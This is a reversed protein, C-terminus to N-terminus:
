WLGGKISKVKQEKGMKQALPFGHKTFSKLAHNPNKKDDSNIKNKNVM